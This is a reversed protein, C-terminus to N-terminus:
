KEGEANQKDRSQSDYYEWDGKPRVREEKSLSSRIENSCKTCCSFFCSYYGGIEKCRPCKWNNM